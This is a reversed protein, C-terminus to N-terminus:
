VRPPRCSEKEIRRVREGRDGGRKGMVRKGRGMVRREKRRDGGM